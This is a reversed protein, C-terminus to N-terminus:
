PRDGVCYLMKRGKLFLRGDAFTPRLEIARIRVIEDIEIWLPPSRNCGGTAGRAPGGDSPTAALQSSRRGERSWEITEVSRRCAMPTAARPIESGTM